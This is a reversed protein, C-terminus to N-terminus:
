RRGRVFLQLMVSQCNVSEAAHRVVELATGVDFADGAILGLSLTVPRQPASTPRSSIAKAVDVHLEGYNRSRLHVDPFVSLPKRLVVLQANAGITNGDAPRPRKKRIVDPASDQPWVSPDASTDPQGGLPEPSPPHAGQSPGAVVVEVDDCGVTLNGEASVKVILSM